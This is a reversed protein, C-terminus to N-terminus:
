IVLAPREVSFSTCRYLFIGIVDPVMTACMRTIPAVPLDRKGVM